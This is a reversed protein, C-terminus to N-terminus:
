LVEEERDPLLAERLMLRARYLRNKVISMPENLIKTMEEYSM